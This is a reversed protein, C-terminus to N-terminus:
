ECIKKTWASSIGEAIGGNRERYRVLGAYGKANGPLFTLVLFSPAPLRTERFDMAFHLLLFVHIKPREEGSFLPQQKKRRKKDGAKKKKKKKVNSM